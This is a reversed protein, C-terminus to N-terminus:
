LQEALQSNSFMEHEFVFLVLSLDVILDKQYKFKALWLFFSGNTQVALPGTWVLGNEFSFPATKGRILSDDM